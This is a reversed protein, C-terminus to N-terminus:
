WVPTVTDRTTALEKQQQASLEHKETTYKRLVADNEAKIQSKQYAAALEEAKGQKDADTMIDVLWEAENHIHGGTAEKGVIAPLHHEVYTVMSDGCPGMYVIQM